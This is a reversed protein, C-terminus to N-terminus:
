RFTVQESTGCVQAVWGPEEGWSLFSRTVFQMLHGEPVIRPYAGTTRHVFRGSFHVLFRGNRERRV